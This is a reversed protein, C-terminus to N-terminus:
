AILTAASFYSFSFLALMMHSTCKIKINLENISKEM